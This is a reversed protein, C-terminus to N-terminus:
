SHMQHYLLRTKSDKWLKTECKPGFHPNSGGSERQLVDGQIDGTTHCLVVTEWCLKDLRNDSILSVQFFLLWSSFVGDARKVGQCWKSFFYSYFAVTCCIAWQSPQQQPKAQSQSGNCVMVGLYVICLFHLTLPPSQQRDWSQLTVESPQPCFISCDSCKKCYHFLNEINLEGHCM